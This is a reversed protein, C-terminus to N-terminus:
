YKGRFQAFIDAFMEDSNWRKDLDPYGYVQSLIMRLNMLNYGPKNCDKINVIQVLVKMLLTDSLSNYKKSFGLQIIVWLLYFCLIDSLSKLIGYYIIVNLKPPFNNPYPM